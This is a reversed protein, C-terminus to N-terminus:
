RAPVSLIICPASLYTIRWWKWGGERVTREDTHRDPRGVCESSRVEVGKHEGVREKCGDKVSIDQTRTQVMRGCHLVEQGWARRM